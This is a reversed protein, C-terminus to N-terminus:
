AEIQEFRDPIRVEWRLRQTIADAFGAAARSEGHVIFTQQPAQKFHGLWALLAAQDAHASLGGITHISARVPVDEGFIKVVPARDVLRRGLTGAAQFGTIVVASGRRELNHRLHHRIRGGECMGSSAIILAGAEWRNLAKSEDADETFRIRIPLKATAAGFLAHRSEPDLLAKHRETIRTAASALPSDVFVNLHALRGRRTEEILITLLEQTRGIAFAPVIVNGRRKGITNEIVEVLEERTDELRKHLRDGYTAEVLLVDAHEVTVPDRVLPRAPQGLDGSFVLKRERGTDDIWAEVIAAGLIHGADRLRFRLQPHPSFETDYAMGHMRTVTFEAEAVSYLPPQDRGRHKREWEADKAQIQASDKLILAALDCTAPTAYIAKDYGRAVLLPLLGCHDLHAHSLIVVDITRPDFRFPAANKAAANSGGQFMGCDLLLRLGDVEVLYCSGTVEGAAGYFTVRM